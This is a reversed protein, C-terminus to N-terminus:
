ANLAYYDVSISRQRNLLAKEHGYVWRIVLSDLKGACHDPRIEIANIVLTSDKGHPYAKYLDKIYVLMEKSIKDGGLEFVVFHLVKM